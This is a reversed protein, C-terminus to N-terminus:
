QGFGSNKAEPKETEKFRGSGESFEQALTAVAKLRDIDIAALGFTVLQTMDRFLRSKRVTSSTASKGTSPHVMPGITFYVAVPNGPPTWQCITQAATASTPQSHRGNRHFSEEGPPYRCISRAIARCESEPLGEREPAELLDCLIEEGGAGRARLWGARRTLEINRSM